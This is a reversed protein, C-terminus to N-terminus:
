TRYWFSKLNDFGKSRSAWKAIRRLVLFMVEEVPHSSGKFVRLNREEWISCLISFSILSLLLTGGGFSPIIELGWISVGFFIPFVLTFWKLWYVPVM